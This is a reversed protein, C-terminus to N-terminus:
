QVPRRSLRSVVASPDLSKQLEHKLLCDTVTVTVTIREHPLPFFIMTHWLILVCHTSSEFDLGPYFSAEPELPGWNFAKAVPDRAHDRAHDRDHIFWAAVQISQVAVTPPWAGMKLRV